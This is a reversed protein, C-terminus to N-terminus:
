TQAWGILSPTVKYRRRESAPHLGLMLGAYWLQRIATEGFFELYYINFIIFQVDWPVKFYLHWSDNGGGAFYLRVISGTAIKHCADINVPSIM